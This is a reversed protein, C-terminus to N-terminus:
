LFHDGFTQSHGFLPYTQQVALPSVFIKNKVNKKTKSVAEGKGTTYSGTMARGHTCALDFEDKSSWLVFYGGGPLGSWCKRGIVFSDRSRNDYQHPSPTVVRNQQTHTHRGTKVRVGPVAARELYYNNNTGRIRKPHKTFPPSSSEHIIIIYYHRRQRETTKRDGSYCDNITDNRFPKSVRKSSMNYTTKWRGM